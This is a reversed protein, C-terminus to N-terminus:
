ERVPGGHGGGRVEASGGLIQLGLNEQEGGIAATDSIAVEKLRRNGLQM